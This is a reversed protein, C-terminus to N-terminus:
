PTVRLLVMNDTADAEALAGLVAALAQEGTTEGIFEIGVRILGPEVMLANKILGVLPARDADDHASPVDVSITRNLLEAEQRHRFMIGMGYASLDLIWCVQWGDTGLSDELLCIGEVNALQRPARRGTAMHAGRMVGRAGRWSALTSPM